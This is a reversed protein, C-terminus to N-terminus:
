RALSYKFPNEAFAAYIYTGGSANLDAGADRIKFGNSLFDINWTSAEANSLNAFLTALEPNSTDRASDKLVWNGTSSSYKVMVYRPRFGCYVFPGDTSGNGTYSGFASYGPIAAFCYAVFTDSTSTSFYSGNITFVSSTPSTTQWGGYPSVVANTLNMRIDANNGLASHYCDWNGVYSRAKIIYFSPAVGLGHGVTYPSNATPVNTFTVVSFGATTNASVSSTISGATNTVATGGAKWQWAVYTTGNNNVSVYTGVSFGNSNFATINGGADSFEASTSSSDLAYTTGVISNQLRHSYAFSRAKVWVFDPAFSVGNVANNLTQTAGTGTYTTAAMYQAGNQITVGPLNQTCLSKYGSPPTYAFPRQGFNTPCMGSGSVSSMAPMLDGTIGTFAVGLSVNNKYFTISATASSADVAIGIVDGASAASGYASSGNNFKTGDNCYSYGNADGTNGVIYQCTFAAGNKQVGVSMSQGSAGVTCEFYFKGAGSPIMMTSGVIAWGGSGTNGGLLNGDKVGYAAGGGTAVGPMIPSLVCYNGVGYSSGPYKTPSDIMWDYTSGATLSINNTTWNNGNGSSDYGLTTTSTGNSFNLKFGNTGYSGAYRKPTWVGTVPDFAGFSTPALAQGDIFNIDAMYGDLYQASVDARRGVFHQVASNWTLNTNQAPYTGLNFTLTRAAGNVYLTFRNAAISQTTDVTLVIYYWGSPDRQVANTMAEFVVTGGSLERFTIQNTVDRFYLETWTNSNSAAAFINQNGFAGVKIWGSWTWTQRNGAVSPTRSLYASASSRFRLSNAISYGSPGNATLVTLM